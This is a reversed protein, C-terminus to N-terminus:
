KARYRWPLIVVGNGSWLLIIHLWSVYRVMGELNKRETAHWSSPHYCSKWEQWLHMIKLVTTGTLHVCCLAATYVNVNVKSISINKFRRSTKGAEFHVVSTWFFASTKKIICGQTCLLPTSVEITVNGYPFNAVCAVQQCQSCCQGEEEVYRFGQPFLTEM